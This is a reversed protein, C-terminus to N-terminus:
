NSKINKVKEYNDAWNTYYKIVKETDIGPVHAAANSLYNELQTEPVQYLGPVTNM